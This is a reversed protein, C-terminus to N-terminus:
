NFELQIKKILRKREEQNGNDTELSVPNNLERIKIFIYKLLNKLILWNVSVIM